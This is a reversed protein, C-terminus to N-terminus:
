DEVDIPSAKTVAELPITGYVHPFLQGGRSPEWRVDEGLAVLDVEVLVLEHLGAFHRAATEAVQDAASLHIYGDEIDLPAGVFLGDAQWAAWQGATLIKYARISMARKHTFIGV